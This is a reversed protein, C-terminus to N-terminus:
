FFYVLSFQLALLNIKFNIVNYDFKSKKDGNENIRSINSSLGLLGVSTEFALGSYVFISVGPNLGFTFSYNQSTTKTLDEGDDVQSIGSSYEFKFATENFFYILRSDTIKLYNRIFPQVFFGNSLYERKQSEDMLDKLMAFDVTYKTRDYGARLGVAVADKFFYGGFAEVSLLYGDLEYLDGIMVNLNDADAQVLSVTAGGFVHRHSVNEDPAIKPLMEFIGGAVSSSSELSSSVSKFDATKSSSSQLVDAVSSSSESDEGFSLAVAVFLFLFFAWFKMPCFYYFGSIMALFTMAFPCFMGMIRGFLTRQLADFILLIPRM